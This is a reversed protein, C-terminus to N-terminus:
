PWCTLGLSRGLEIIGANCSDLAAAPIPVSIDFFIDIPQGMPDVAPEFHGAMFACGPGGNFLGTHCQGDISWGGLPCPDNDPCFNYSVSFRQLNISEITGCDSFDPEGEPKTSIFEQILTLQVSDPCPLPEPPAPDGMCVGSNCQDESTNADGDDCETGDAVPTGDVCDGPLVCEGSEHCQDIPDCTIGDCPFDCAGTAAICVGLPGCEIPTGTCQGDTPNCADVTCNDGDNCIIPATQCGNTPDCSDSTCLLGDDCDVPPHDALCTETQEDMADITCANGDDCLVDANANCTGALDGHALHAPLANESVTITHVNEPNGPPIHCVQVKNAAQAPAGALAALASVLVAFLFNRLLRKIATNSTRLCTKRIENM